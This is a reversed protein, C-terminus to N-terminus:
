LPFIPKEILATIISQVSGPQSSPTRVGRNRLMAAGTGLAWAQLASSLHRKRLSYFVAGLVELEM